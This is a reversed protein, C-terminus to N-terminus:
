LCLAKSKICSRHDVFNRKKICCNMLCYKLKEKIDKYEYKPTDIKPLLDLSTQVLAETGQRPVMVASSVDYNLHFFDKKGLMYYVNKFEFDLDESNYNMLLNKEEELKREFFKKERELLLLFKSPIDKKFSLLIEIKLPHYFEIENLQYYTGVGQKFYDCYKSSGLIPFGVNKLTIKVQHKVFSKNKHSLFKIPSAKILSIWGSTTNRTQHSSIYRVLTKCPSNDIETEIIYDDNEKLSFNDGFNGNVLGTFVYKVQTTQDMMLETLKHSCDKTKSCIVFGSTAKDLFEGIIEPNELKLSSKSPILNFKLSSQLTKEKQGCLTLGSAKWVVALFEDQFFIPLDKVENRLRDVTENTRTIVIYDNVQLKYSDSVFNNNVTVEKSHFASKTQKISPFLAKTSSTSRLFKGIKIGEFEKSLITLDM